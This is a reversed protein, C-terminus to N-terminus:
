IKGIQVKQSVELFWILEKSQEVFKELGKMNTIRSFEIKNERDYTANIITHLKTIEYIEKNEKNEKSEKSLSFISDVNQFREAYFEAAFKGPGKACYCIRIIMAQMNRPYIFRQVIKTANPATAREQYVKFSEVNVRFITDHDGATKTVVVPAHANKRYDYHDKYKFHFNALEKMERELIENMTTSYMERAIKRAELEGSERDTWVEFLEGEIEIFTEPFNIRFSYEKLL